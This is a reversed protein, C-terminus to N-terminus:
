RPSTLNDPSTDKGGLGSSGSKGARISIAGVWRRLSDSVETPCCGIVGRCRVSEFGM